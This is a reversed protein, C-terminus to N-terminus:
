GWYSCMWWAMEDSNNEIGMIDCFEKLKDNWSICRDLDHIKVPEGLWATQLSTKICVVYMPEEGYSHTEISVDLEKIIKDKKNEWEVYEERENEYDPEPDKFGLKSMYLSEWDWDNDENLFNDDKILVGYFLYAEADLGMILRRTWISDREM